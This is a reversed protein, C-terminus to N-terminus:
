AARGSMLALGEAVSVFEGGADVREKGFRNIFLNRVAPVFSTGGTLFVRDIDSAALNANELAKDVAGGFRALDPAIWEEFEQRTITREVKLRKHEFKLVTSEASSLASKAAGVARYLAQGQQDNVLDLLARLKEPEAATRTVDEIDGLTQPTRMLALRHWHGLSAYWEIPVPLPQGGMIRYTSDRGLLPAIVTNIIRYDFQDGAIGVGAHGLPTARGTAPDFRLVSFDSTGGGFDGVLITTPKELRQAFRWGAAEPEWAIGIPGFGAATFSERLRQEGLADDARDGAFHVPRGVTVQVSAPDIKVAEMLHTLFRAILMELTMRRSFIQTERFSKQALYSKMSMIMRSEAPDELYADVAAAGIAEHLKLRGREEDHWFCLLTRCTDSEGHHPFTFRATETRGDPHALVVVSNTTGFDLGIKLSNSPTTTM